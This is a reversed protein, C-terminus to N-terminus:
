TCATDIRSPARCQNSAAEAKSASCSQRRAASVPHSADTRHSMPFTCPCLLECIQPQEGSAMEPWAHKALATSATWVRLNGRAHSRSKNATTARNCFSSSAAHSCSSELTRSKSMNLGTISSKQSAAAGRAARSIAAVGCALASAAAVGCPGAEASYCSQARRAVRRSNLRSAPARNAHVTLPPM